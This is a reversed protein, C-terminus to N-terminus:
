GSSENKLSSLPVIYHLFSESTETVNAPESIPTYKTYAARTLLFFYLKVSIMAFFGFPYLKM